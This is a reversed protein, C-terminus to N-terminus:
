RQLQHHYHWIGIKKLKRRITITTQNGSGDFTLSNSVRDVMLRQRLQFYRLARGVIAPCSSSVHLAGRVDLAVDQSMLRLRGSVKIISWKAPNSPYIMCTWQTTQYAVMQELSM